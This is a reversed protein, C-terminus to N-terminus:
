FLANEQKNENEYKFTYNGIRKQRGKLVKSINGNNLNLQRAAERIGDFYLEEGTTLNIAVVPKSRKKGNEVCKMRGLKLAHQMNESYTCWELNDVCNNLPNCDIHNVCFKNKPNDLFAQVVLRHILFTKMKGNKYLNVHLYGTKKDLQPKLVQEKGTGNYNLSKVRGLNSVQYNEYDKITKWIEM